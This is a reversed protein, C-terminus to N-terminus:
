ICYFHLYIVILMKNSAFCKSTCDFTPLFLKLLVLGFMM